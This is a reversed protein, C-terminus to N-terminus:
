LLSGEKSMEVTLSELVEYFILLSDVFLKVSIASNLSSGSMTLGDSLDGAGIAVALFVRNWISASAM